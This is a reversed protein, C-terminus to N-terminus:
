YDDCACAGLGTGGTGQYRGTSRDPQVMERSKKRRQVWMPMPIPKYHRHIVIAAAVNNAQRQTVHILPMTEYRYKDGMQIMQSELDLLTSYEHPLINSSYRHVGHWIKGSLMIMCEHEIVQAAFESPQLINGHPKCYTYLVKSLHKIFGLPPGQGGFIRLDTKILDAHFIFLTRTPPRGLLLYDVYVAAIFKVQYVLVSVKTHSSIIAEFQSPVFRSHVSLAGDQPSEPDLSSRMAALLSINNPRGRSYGLMDSWVVIIPTAGQLRAALPSVASLCTRQLYSCRGHFLNTCVNYVSNPAYMGDQATALYIEMTERRSFAGTKIGYIERQTVSAHWTREITLDVM